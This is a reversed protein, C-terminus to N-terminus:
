LHYFTFSDWRYEFNWATTERHIINTCALASYQFIYTLELTKVLQLFIQQSVYTFIPCKGDTPVTEM